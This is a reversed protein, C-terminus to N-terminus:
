PSNISKKTYHRGDPDCVVHVHLREELL